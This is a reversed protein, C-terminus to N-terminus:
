SAHKLIARYGNAMVHQRVTQAQQANAFPGIQVHLFRDHKASYIGAHFGRRRLQSVLTQADKSDAVAGVQVMYRARESTNSNASQRAPHDRELVRPQKHERAFAPIAPQNTAGHAVHLTPPIPHSNATVGIDGTPLPLPPHSAVAQRLVPQVPSPKPPTRQSISDPAGAPEIAASNLTPKPTGGRGFSYGLGFFVASVLSAAMFVAMITSTSWHVESVEPLELKEEWLTAM